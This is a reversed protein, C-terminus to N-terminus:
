RGHEHIGHTRSRRKALDASRKIAPHRMVDVAGSRKNSDIEFYKGSIPEVRIPTRKMKAELQVANKGCPECNDRAFAEAQASSHAGLKFDREGAEFSAVRGLRQM